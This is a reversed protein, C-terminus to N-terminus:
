LNSDEVAWGERGPSEREARKRDCGIKGHIEMPFPGEEPRRAASGGPAPLPDCGMPRGNGRDREPKRCRMATTGGVAGRVMGVVQKAELGAPLRGHRGLAVVQVEHGRHIDGGDEVGAHPGRDALFLGSIM